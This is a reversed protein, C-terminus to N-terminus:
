ANEIKNLWQIEAAEFYVRPELLFIDFFTSSFLCCFDTIKDIHVLLFCYMEIDEIYRSTFDNNDELM